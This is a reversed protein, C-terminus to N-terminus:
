TQSNRKEKKKMIVKKKKNVKKFLQKEGKKIVVEM